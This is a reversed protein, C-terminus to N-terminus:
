LDDASWLLRSYSSYMAQCRAVTYLRGDCPRSAQLRSDAAHCKRAAAPSQVRHMCTQWSCLAGYAAAQTHPVVYVSYVNSRLWSVANRRNLRASAAVTQQKHIVVAYISVRTNRRAYFTSCNDECRSVVTARFGAFARLLSRPIDYYRYAALVPNFRFPLWSLQEFGTSSRVLVDTYSQLIQVPKGHLTTVTSCLCQAYINILTSTFNLSIYRPAFDSNAFSM